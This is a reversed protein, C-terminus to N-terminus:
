RASAAALLQDLDKQSLEGIHKGVVRAESDLLVTVPLGPLRLNRLLEGETDVVQPYTVGVEELFEAAAGTIDQTDVGVFAVQDGHKRHNRELLPMEDRCPQCWSAWLNVLTPRGALSALEVSSGDTLCPLTLDPLREGPPALRGRAEDPLVDCSEVRPVPVPTHEFSPRESVTSSTARPASAGATGSASGCGTVLVAFLGIGAAVRVPGAGRTVASSM